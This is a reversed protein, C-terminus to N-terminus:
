VVLTIALNAADEFRTRYEKLTAPTRTLWRSVEELRRFRWMVELDDRTAPRLM